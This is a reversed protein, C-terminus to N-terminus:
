NTCSVLRAAAPMDIARGLYSLTAPLLTVSLLVATTVVFLGGIGISRTETIPTILLSAFGVAVTMGSTVVARGATKIARVAAGRAGHGRNLEERFRTVILLSYDIGVALGVMSVITLVFVSMSHFSAAVQVLALSCTIAIVGIILPLAAAVLAGFALVLIMASFPLANREGSEADEKSAIRVDYDL